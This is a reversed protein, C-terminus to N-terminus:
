GEQIRLPKERKSCSFRLLEGELGLARGEIVCEKQQFSTKDWSQGRHM